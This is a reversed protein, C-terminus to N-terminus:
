KKLINKRDLEGEQWGVDKGCVPCPDCARIGEYTYGCNLCRWTIPAAKETLTGSVLQEHLSKFVNHHVGEIRAIQLWLRATDDHGERRALEAFGPYVENHEELEDQAAFQLNEATTGLQFPYGAHLDISPACAGLKQLHELFEEAHIAENDATEEFVRAIWEYGEKRAVQAYVTYRTRAQSEGAFARALNIATQNQLNQEMEYGGKETLPYGNRGFHIGNRRQRYQAASDMVRQAILEASNETFNEKLANRIETRRQEDVALLVTQAIVMEPDSSGVAYRHELFYDFNRSECGGVTNILVMPLHKNAAETSSLGGPKTVIIDSADMYAPVDKTYGLVQLRPGAIESMTEYLKENNGCIAVVMCHEPLRDLLERAVRRIPGCGMSGSMLLIVLGDEPLGLKERAEKKDQGTYFAQRVPIGYPILHLSSIGARIFESSLDSTPIFYGDMECQELTPHCTYDTSVFYCPIEVGWVKRVETMLMGSFTHVCIVADYNGMMLMKWVKGAGLKLVEYIPATEDPDASREFARYGVDFLKPAHKYIRVHWNCIFKSVGPSLYALADRLDCEVGRQELVEMIARATSNHGEGTNCSLLVVRMIGKEKRDTNEFIM